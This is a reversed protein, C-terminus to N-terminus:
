WNMVKKKFFNDWTKFVVGWDYELAKSRARKGKVKRAKDDSFADLLADAALRHDIIARDVEYTGMLRAAPKVLWGTDGLIEPATTYDTTIVPTGALMSEVFPIGWGEGSTGLLFVDGINYLENVEEDTVGHYFKMGTWFVKDAVGFRNAVSRLNTHAAPDEPDSNFLLILDKMKDKILSFARLNEALMKRGQNRSNIFAIKKNTLDTKEGKCNICIDSWKRRLEFKKKDPHPFYINKDSGLPIYDTEIGYQDAVQKQAFRSYAVPFDAKKLVAECGTPFPVGDSPFWMVFKAPSLDMRLIPPNLMFTDCTVFFIDPKYQNIYPVIKDIGFQMKGHPLIPFKFHYKDFKSDHLPQGFYHWSFHTLDYEEKDQLRKFINKMQNAYGTVTFLSDSM